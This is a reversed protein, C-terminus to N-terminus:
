TQAPAGFERELVIEKEVSGNGDAQGAQPPPPAVRKFDHHHFFTLWMGEQLKGGPGTLSEVPLRVRLRCPRVGNPLNDLVAQVATRGLGTNRYAGRMWVFFDYVPPRGNAQGDGGAPSIDILGCPMADPSVEEQGPYSNKTYVLWAWHNKNVELREALRKATERTVGTPSDVSRYRFPIQPSLTKATM